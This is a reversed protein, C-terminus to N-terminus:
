TELLHAVIFCLITQIAVSPKQVSQIPPLPHIKTLATRPTLTTTINIWRGLLWLLKNM